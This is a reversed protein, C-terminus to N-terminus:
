YESPNIIGEKYYSDTELVPLINKPDIEFSTIGWSLGIGFGAALVNKKEMDNDDGFADCITLPISIGGTNGYRDLSILVQEQAAGIRRSIQKIIFQNAQHLLIHDYSDATTNTEEFYELISKPVDSTSFTFVSVGDMYIDYKTRRINDSCLYEEHSADMDRFGGAPLIISKFRYGDTYLSTKIISGNNKKYLIAAGADGYMMAISKDNPNVLKSATEGLLLLGYESQSNQLMSTLVQQGYIFGSCGLGVDLAACNVSLELRKQLVCATAPRRYDPSQTVFVLMGIKNKEVDINNLLKNAAEYALDSATQKPVARHICKIGTSKIFKTTVDEGFQKVFDDRELKNEPVVVAMGVVSINNVTFNAM